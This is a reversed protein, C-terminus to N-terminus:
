PTLTLKDFHGSYGTSATNKGAVTFRFVKNGTTSFTKTGFDFENNYSETAAYMDVTSGLDVGDISLKYIGRTAFTKYRLKVHYTGTQTVNVTFEVYQNVGTANLKVSQGNSFGAESDVQTTIGASPIYTVNELEYSAGPTPTPTPIPTPTPGSATLTVTSQLRIDASSSGLMVDFIGSDVIFSHSAESYRNLDAAKLTFSVPKTEGANLSVRQFGKLEKIPVPNVSSSRQHTYLQVVEDGARTGTNQVNLSVTVQGNTPVQAPTVALNSYQFTTYSLGHGFPFQTSGTFYMYTYGQTIDYDDKNPLQSLTEYVTYPLKGSPNVNGFLVDAIANGGEEGDFFSGMLAKVNDKIWRVSLPGANLLVVVTNPNAQYVSQVLQLQMGPLNISTRDKGEAEVSSNTGVYVVAADAGRAVDAAAAISADMGSTSTFDCGQSYLVQTGANVKNQIGALPTVPNQANGDYNPTGKTFINAHPGIVAIKAINNKNLPLFNNQNSLLVISERSAKLSLARHDPHCIETTAISNYPNMASPDFEGLRFRVRFIRTLANNLDTETLRGNRVANALNDRYEEDSVEVGAKVAAAVAEEYTAYWHKQSVLYNVAGTDSVVFGDFGWLNKLTDKMVLPNVHVPTGNLNNYSVMVSQAKGDIICNRFNRTFYEHFLRETVVANFTSLRNEENDYCGMHKLTAAAKLYKPDNGQLGNIFAIAMKSTLTVDEGWTECIRGWLPDRTMDIVPSRCILGKGDLKKCAWLEDSIAAAVDTILVPDWTASMATPIPFMSTARTTAVGHLVQNWSANNYPIALRPIAPAYKYMQSAKEDMTLRSILDAVRTDVPQTTDLYLPQTEVTIKDISSSYGSSGSNKGTVTFRFLRNGTTGFTIVGLSVEAGYAPNTAYQDIPMGLNTGDVSLQVMGRSNFTKYMVKINYTGAVVNPLTFEVYDGVSDGNLKVAQGNSFGTEVDVQTTAGSQTRALNEAEFVNSVALSMSSCLMMFSIFVALMALRKKFRNEKM